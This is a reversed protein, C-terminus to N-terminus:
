GISSKHRLGPRRVACYPRDIPPRSALAHKQAVVVHLGGAKAVQPDLQIDTGRGALCTAVTIAGSRGAQSILTAEDADQIGNLLQFSLNRSQLERAIELSEAISLTGILFGSLGVAIM